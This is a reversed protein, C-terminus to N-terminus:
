SPEDCLAVSRNTSAQRAYAIPRAAAVLAIPKDLGNGRPPDGAALVSSLAAGRGAFIERRRDSGPSGWDKTFPQLWRGTM